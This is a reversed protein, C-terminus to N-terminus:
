AALALYETDGKPDPVNFTPAVPANLAADRRKGAVLHPFTLLLHRFAILDGRKDLLPHDAGTHDFSGSPIFLDDFTDRAHFPPRGHACM